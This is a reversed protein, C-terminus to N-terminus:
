TLATRLSQRETETETETERRGEEGGEERGGERGGKRGGERGGEVLHNLLSLHRGGIRTVENRHRLGMHNFPTGTEVLQGRVEV